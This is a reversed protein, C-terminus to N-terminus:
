RSTALSPRIAECSCRGAHDKPADRLGEDHLPCRRHFDATLGMEVLRQRRPQGDPVCPKAGM